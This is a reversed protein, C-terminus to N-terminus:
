TNEENVNWISNAWHYLAQRALAIGQTRDEARSVFVFVFNLFDGGWLALYIVNEKTNITHACM